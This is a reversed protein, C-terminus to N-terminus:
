FYGGTMDIVWDCLAEGEEQTQVDNSRALFEPSHWASEYNQHPYRIQDTYGIEMHERIWGAGTWNDTSFDDISHIVLWGGLWDVGAILVEKFIWEKRVAGGFAICHWKTRASSSHVCVEGFALARDM